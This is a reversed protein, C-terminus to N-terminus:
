PRSGILMLVTSRLRSLQVGVVVFFFRRCKLIRHRGARTILRFTWLGVKSWLPVQLNQLEFSTLCHSSSSLSWISGAQNRLEFQLYVVSIIVPPKSFFLFTQLEYLNKIFLHKYNLSFGQSELVFIVSFQPLLKKLTMELWIIPIFIKFNRM